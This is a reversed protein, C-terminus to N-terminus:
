HVASMRQIESTVCGYRDHLRLIKHVSWIFHIIEVCYQLLPSEQEKPDLLRRSSIRTSSLSGICGAVHQRRGRGEREDVGGGKSRQEEGREEEAGGREEKGIVRRRVEERVKRM